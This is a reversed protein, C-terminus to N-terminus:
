RYDARKVIKDAVTMGEPSTAANPPPGVPGPGVPQQPEPPAMPSLSALLLKKAAEMQEPSPAQGTAMLLALMMPDRLDEAKSISIRLPEPPPPNPKTMVKAPDRGALVMVDAIIPSPNVFGSKGTMNLIDMWLKIQQHADLRIMSDPVVEYVFEGAIQKRDWNSNLRKVDEPPAYKFDGYLALLGAMVEGIGQIFKAVHSRDMGNRTDFNSQVIKAESASREGSAFSGNQNAGTQWVEDLDHDVQRDFAQNEQPYNAQTLVGLADDGRGNVPIFGKWTGAMLQVLTEPDVKNTNVWEHPINRQRQEHQHTRSEILELVQPRGIASESPPIPDDSVYNIKLVRIPFRCAGVYSGSEEHFKQGTWDEHIVPDTIGKVFVLRRIRKFYKEKPDFRYAWYFVEDFEVVRQKGKASQNPDNQKLTQDSEKGEGLVKEKDEDKLHLETQAESWAMEGSRGVWDSHDFNFGTFATSWLLDSPSLRTVSFMADTTTETDQMPIANQAMLQKLKEPPITSVDMLPMPVMDTRKQYSVLVVGIGSTATNDVLAQFIAEDTDARKLTDNLEEAFIPVSPAFVDQRAVLRVEPMQGFLSSVRAKVRPWDKNIAIRAEDSEEAFPKGRHFEVSDTWDVIIQAREVRCLEIQRKLEKTTPTSEAETKEAAKPAASPEPPIPTEVAPPTMPAELMYINESFPPSVVFLPVGM